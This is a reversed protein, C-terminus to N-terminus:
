PQATTRTSRPLTARRPAARRPAARRQAPHDLTHHTLTHTRRLRLTHAPRPPQAAHHAHSTPWSRPSCSTTLCLCSLPSAPSDLALTLSHSDTKKSPLDLPQSAADPRLCTPFTLPLFPMRPPAPFNRAAHRRIATGRSVVFDFFIFVYWRHGLRYVQLKGRDM